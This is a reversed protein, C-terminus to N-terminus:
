SAKNLFSVKGRVLNSLAQESRESLKLGVMESLKVLCHEAGSGECQKVVKTKEKRGGLREPEESLRGLSDTTKTRGVQLNTLRTLKTGLSRAWRPVLSGVHIREAGGKGKDFRRQSLM